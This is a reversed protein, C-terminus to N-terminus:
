LHRPHGAGSRPLNGGADGKLLQIKVKSDNEFVLSVDTKGDWVFAQKVKVPDPSLSYNEPPTMEEAVYSGTPMTDWPVDTLYGGEGTIYTGVFRNDVGTIKIVAGALGKTPNSADVKKVILVYEEQEIHEVTLDGLIIKQM